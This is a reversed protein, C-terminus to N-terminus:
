FWSQVSHHQCCLEVLALDDILTISDAVKEQLGRAEIDIRMAYIQLKSDLLAKAADNDVIAAYVGDEILVISEGPDCFSLCDTLAPNAFPSKSVTHLRM